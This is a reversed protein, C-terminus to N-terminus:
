HVLERSRERAFWYRLADRMILMIPNLAEQPQQQAGISYIWWDYTLYVKLIIAFLTSTFFLISTLWLTSQKQCLSSSAATTMGSKGLPFALIYITPLHLNGVISDWKVGIFRVLFMTEQERRQSFSVDRANEKNLESEPDFEHINGSLNLVYPYKSWSLPM